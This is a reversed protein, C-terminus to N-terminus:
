LRRECRECACDFGWSGKLTSMRKERSLKREESSLYTICLEEGRKIDRGVRFEWAREIRKKEINASCSHNFYSAAPWCGYGFFESGDDELSRIGFANHSDRSSLLFLSEPTVLPLLPLPLTALLHLYSKTFDGLDDSSHYPTSDDALALVREWGEAHRHRWVIGSVCFSMVDPSIQQLLAKQLAKKHQKTVQVVNENGEPTQQEDQRAVRILAAQAAVSAWAQTIELRNPRPLDVDVMDSEEKSRGKVLREVASWADVGIEGSEERWREQCEKNCFAFGVTKDRIDLDRGHEYGFCQGCVERRYARLLVSLTLDDSRWILTDELIDQAAFVARGASPTHRIEFLTSIPAGAPLSKNQDVLSSLSSISSTRSISSVSSATSSEM